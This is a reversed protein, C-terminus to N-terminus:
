KPCCPRAARPTFPPAALLVYGGLFPHTSVGVGISKCSPAAKRCSCAGACPHAFRARTRSPVAMVLPTGHIGKFTPTAMDTGLLVRAVVHTHCPLEHAVFPARCTSLLRSPFGPGHLVRPVGQPAALAVHGGLFLPASLEVGVTQLKAGDKRIPCSCAGACPHAFRVRTRSPVAMVLPAGHM